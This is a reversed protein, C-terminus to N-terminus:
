KFLEPCEIEVTKKTQPGLEAFIHKKFEKDAVSALIRDCFASVNGETFGFEASAFRKLPINKYALTINKNGKDAAVSWLSAEKTFSAEPDEIETRIFFEEGTEATEIKWLGEEDNKRFLDAAAKKFLHESGERAVRKVSATKVAKNVGLKEALCNFDLSM